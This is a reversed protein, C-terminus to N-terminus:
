NVGKGHKELLCIVRGLKEEGAFLEYCLRALLDEDVELKELM